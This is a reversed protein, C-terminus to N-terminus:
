HTLSQANLGKGVIAGPRSHLEHQGIGRTSHLRHQKIDANQCSQYKQQRSLDLVGGWGQGLM